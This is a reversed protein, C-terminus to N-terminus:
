TLLNVLFVCFYFLIIFLFFLCNSSLAFSTHPERKAFVPFSHPKPGMLITRTLEENFFFLMLEFLMFISNLIVLLTFSGLSSEHARQFLGRFFEVLHFSARLFLNVFPHRIM